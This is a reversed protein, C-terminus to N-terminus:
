GAGAMAEFGVAEGAAALSAGNAGADEGFLGLVRRAGEVAADILGQRDRYFRKVWFGSPPAVYALHVARAGHTAPQPGMVLELIEEYREQGVRWAQEAALINEPSIHRAILYRAWPPIGVPHADEPKSLIVLIHTCGEAIADLVPVPNLFAGDVYPRGRVLVPKRYVLPMAASAKLMALLEEDSSASHQAFVMSRMISPDTTYIKFDTPHHRLRTLDLRKRDGVVDDFCYDINLALGQFVRRPRFSIFTDNNIDCYYISTGLQVQGALFYGINISGASSGHAADFADSLGLADLGCLAGATFVGRM